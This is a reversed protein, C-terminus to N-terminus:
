GQGSDNPRLRGALVAGVGCYNARGQTAICVATAHELLARLVRVGDVEALLPLFKL